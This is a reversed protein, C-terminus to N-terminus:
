FFRDDEGRREFVVSEDRWCLYWLSGTEGVFSEVELFDEGDIEGGSEVSFVM